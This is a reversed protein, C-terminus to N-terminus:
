FRACGAQTLLRQLLTSSRTHKQTANDAEKTIKMKQKGQPEVEHKLQNIIDQYISKLATDEADTVPLVWQFAGLFHKALRLRAKVEDSFEEGGGTEQLSGIEEKIIKKLQTKTIKM